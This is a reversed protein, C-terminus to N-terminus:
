EFALTTPRGSEYYRPFGNVEGISDLNHGNRAKGIRSRPFCINTPDIFEKTGTVNSTRMHSATAAAASMSSGQPCIKVPVIDLHVEPSGINRKLEVKTPGGTSKNPYSQGKRDKLILSSSSVTRLKLNLGNEELVPVRHDTDNFPLTAPEVLTRADVADLAAVMGGGQQAVTYLDQSSPGLPKATSILLSSLTAPSLTRRAEAVLAVIGAVVPAAFSTGTKSPGLINPKIDLDWTPGYTSRDPIGGKDDYANVSIVGCGTSPSGGSFLGNYGDNGAAVICTVGKQSIRSVVTPLLSQAWNQGLIVTSSIIIQAGDQFAEVWGMLTADPAVDVLPLAVSTGHSRCAPAKPDGAKGEGGFVTYDGFAVRCGKEFCGGLAKKTYDVSEMIRPFSAGSDVVAIKINSGMLGRKHLENVQTTTYIWDFANSGQNAKNAKQREHQQQAGAGHGTGAAVAPKAPRPLSIFTPWKVCKDTLAQLHNNGTVNALDVSIGRLIDSDFKHRVQDGSNTVAEALSKVHTSNQCEIIFGSGVQEFPQKAEGFPRLPAVAM